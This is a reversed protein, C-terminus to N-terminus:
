DSLSGSVTIDSVRRTGTATDPDALLIDRAADSRHELQIWGQDHGCLLAFSLSPSVRDAPERLGLSRSYRGGPLVPLEAIIREVASAADIRQDKEWATLVTQRVAVTCDAVLPQRPRDDGLAPESALGLAPAWYAFRNWRFGNVIPNGVQSPLAGEQLQTVDDWNLSTFPDRTLFWALARVLDKPGTQDDSESLGTNRGPDLVAARLLAGFGDADDAALKRGPPALSLHDDDATVLGLERLTRVANSFTEDKARSAEPLLSPPCLLALARGAPQQGGASLLFRAVAWMPSPLSAPDNILTM